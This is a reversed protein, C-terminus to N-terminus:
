PQTREARPRQRMSAMRPNAVTPSRSATIRLRRMDGSTASIATGVPRRCHQGAHTSLDSPEDQATQLLGSGHRRHEDEGNEEEAHHGVGAQEIGDDVADQAADARPGPAHDHAGASRAKSTWRSPEPATVKRTVMGAMSGSKSRRCISLRMRAHTVDIAAPTL